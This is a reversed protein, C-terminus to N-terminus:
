THFGHSRRASMGFDPAGSIIKGKGLDCLPTIGYNKRKIM